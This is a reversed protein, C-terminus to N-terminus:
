GGHHHNGSLFEAPCKGHCVPHGHSPVPPPFNSFLDRMDECAGHVQDNLMISTRTLEKRRPLHGNILLFSTEVFPVNEALQEIFAAIAFFARKGTWLTIRSKCSGTNAFGPDYTIYGTKMDSRGSISIAKEGETGVIVPM